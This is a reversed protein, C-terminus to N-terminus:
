DSDSIEFKLDSMAAQKFTESLLTVTLETITLEVSVALLM